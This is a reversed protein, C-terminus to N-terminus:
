CEGRARSRRNCGVGLVGYQSTMVTPRFELAIPRSALVITQQTLGFSVGTMDEGNVSKLAM